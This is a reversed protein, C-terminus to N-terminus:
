MGGMNTSAWVAITDGGGNVLTKDVEVVISLVNVKGFFNEAAGAGMNTGQLMGILLTSTAADLAPCGAGDFTLGGAAAKVTAVADNFGALNFYFPDARLGAYVKMKLTDSTIGNTTSADGKVFDIVNGGPAGLVCNIAQAADFTCIIDTKTGAKGYGASSELHLAYQVADSFKSTNTALPSVNLIMTLKDNATWAYVDTIDGAADMKVNPGDLHDAAIAWATGAIIALASAGQLYRMKHM